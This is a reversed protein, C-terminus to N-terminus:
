HKCNMEWGRFKNDKLFSSKWLPLGLPIWIIKNSSFNNLGGQFYEIAEMKCSFKEKNRGKSHQAIKALSYIMVQSAITEFHNLSYGLTFQSLYPCQTYSIKKKTMPVVCPYPVYLFFGFSNYHKGFKYPFITKINVAM